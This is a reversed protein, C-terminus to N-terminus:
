VQNTRTVEPERRAPAHAGSVAARSRGFRRRRAGRARLCLAGFPLLTAVHAHRRIQRLSLGLELLEEVEGDVEQADDAEVAVELADVRRELARQSIRLRLEERLGDEVDGM